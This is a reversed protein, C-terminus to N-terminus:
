GLIRSPLLHSEFWAPVKQGCRPSQMNAKFHVESCLLWTDFLELWPLAKACFCASNRYPSAKLMTCGGQVWWSRPWVTNGVQTNVTQINTLAYHVHGHRAEEPLPRLLSLPWRVHVKSFRERPVKTTVIPEMRRNNGFTVEPIYLACVVHAWGTFPCNVDVLWMLWVHNCETYHFVKSPSVKAFKSIKYSNTFIKGVFQPAHCSVNCVTGLPLAKQTWSWLNSINSDLFSSTYNCVPTRLKGIRHHWFSLSFYRLERRGLRYNFTNKTRCLCVTHRLHGPYVLM